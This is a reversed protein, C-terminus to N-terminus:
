SEFKKTCGVGHRRLPLMSVVGKAKPHTADLNLHDLLIPYSLVHYWIWIIMCGLGYLSVHIFNLCNWFEGLQLRQCCRGSPVVLILWFCGFAVPKLDRPCGVPSQIAYQELEVFRWIAAIWLFLVLLWYRSRHDDM